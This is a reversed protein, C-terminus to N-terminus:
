YFVKEIWFCYLIENKIDINVIVLTDVIIYLKVNTDFVMLYKYCRGLVIQVQVKCM